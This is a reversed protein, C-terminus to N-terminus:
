QEIKSVQELDKLFQAREPKGTTAPTPVNSEMFRFFCHVILVGCIVTLM